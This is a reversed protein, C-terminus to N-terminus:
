KLLLEVLGVKIGRKVWTLSAYRQWRAMRVGRYAKYDAAPFFVCTKVDKCKIQEMKSLLYKCSM